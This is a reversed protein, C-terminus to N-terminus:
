LNNKNQKYENSLRFTKICEELKIKKVYNVFERPLPSPGVWVSKQIMTYDFKVLHRRLWEREAKRKEKIDFLVLLKKEKSTKPNPLFTKLLISRKKFYREGEKTIKIYSGSYIIYKKNHLRSFSNRVSQKKYKKFIPLGFYNVPIGKYYAARTNLLNLITETISM